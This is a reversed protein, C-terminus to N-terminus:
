NKLYIVVLTGIPVIQFVIGLWSGYCMYFTVSVRCSVTENDRKFTCTCVVYETYIIWYFYLKCM